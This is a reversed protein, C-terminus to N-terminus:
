FLLKLSVKVMKQRLLQDSNMSDDMIKGAANPSILRRSIQHSQGLTYCRAGKVGVVYDNREFQTGGVWEGDKNVAAESSILEKPGLVCAQIDAMADIL